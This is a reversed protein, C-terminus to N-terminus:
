AQIRFDELRKGKRLQASLGRPTGGRGVWTESPEGYPNRYKPLVPPYRRREAQRAKLQDLNKEAPHVTETDSLRLNLVFPVQKTPALPRGQAQSVTQSQAARQALRECEEAVRLLKERERRFAEAKIRTAEARERWYEPHRVFERDIM